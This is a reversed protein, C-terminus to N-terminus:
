LWFSALLAESSRKMFLIKGPSISLTHRLFDFCILLHLVPDIRSPAAMQRVALYLHGSFKPQVRRFQALDIIVLLLRPFQWQWPEDFLEIELTEALRSGVVDHRDLLSTPDFPRLSLRSTGGTLLTCPVAGSVRHAVAAIHPAATRPASQAVM